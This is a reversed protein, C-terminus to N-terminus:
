RLLDDGGAKGTPGLRGPAVGEAEKRKKAFCRTNECVGEKKGEAEFLSTDERGQLTLRERHGPDWGRGAKM